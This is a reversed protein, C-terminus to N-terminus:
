DDLEEPPAAHHHRPGDPPAALLGDLLIRVIDAATLPRGACVKPHTGSFVLLHLAHAFEEVPVALRARDDGVVDVVAARFAESM